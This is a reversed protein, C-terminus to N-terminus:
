ASNASGRSSPCLVSLAHTVVLAQMSCAARAPEMVGLMAYLACVLRVCETHYCLWPRAAGGGAARQKLQQAYQLFEELAEGVSADLPAGSTSAAPHRRTLILRTPALAYPLHCAELVVMFALLKCFSLALRTEQM